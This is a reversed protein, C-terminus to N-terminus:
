YANTIVNHLLSSLQDICANLDYLECHLYHDMVEQELLGQGEVFLGSLRNCNYFCDNWTKADQLINWASETGNRLIAYVWQDTFTDSVNYLLITFPCHSINACTSAIPM